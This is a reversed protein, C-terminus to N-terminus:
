RPPMTSRPAWVVRSISRRTSCARPRMLGTLGPSRWCWASSPCLRPTALLEETWPAAREALGGIEAATAQADIRAFVLNGLVIAEGLSDGALSLGEASGGHLILIARLRLALEPDLDALDALAQGAMERMRRREARSGALTELLATVARGRVQPDPSCQYAENLREGAEATHGVAREARGLAILVEARIAPEPPELLARRLLAAATEQAGRVTAHEAARRLDAVTRADGTASAHLLHVGIRDPPAGQERLLAVARGHGAARERASLGARVAGALIPHRFELLVDDDFIGAREM